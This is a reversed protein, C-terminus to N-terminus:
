PRGGLPQKQAGPLPVKSQANALPCKRANAILADCFEGFALLGLVITELRAADRVIAFYPSHILKFKNPFHFPRNHWSCKDSRTAKITLTAEAARVLEAVSRRWDDM